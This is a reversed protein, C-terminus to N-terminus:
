KASAKIAVARDKGGSLGAMTEGNVWGAAVPLQSLGAVTPSPPGRSESRNLM